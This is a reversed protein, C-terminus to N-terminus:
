KVDTERQRRGKLVNTVERGRGEKEREQETRQTSLQLHDADPQFSMRRENTSREATM